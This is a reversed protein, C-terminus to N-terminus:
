DWQGGGQNEAGPDSTDANPDVEPEPQANGNVENLKTEVEASTMGSNISYLPDYTEDGSHSSRDWKFVQCTYLQGTETASALPTESENLEANIVCLYGNDAEWQAQWGLCVEQEDNWQDPNWTLEAFTTDKYEQKKPFCNSM